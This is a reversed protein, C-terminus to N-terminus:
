DRILSRRRERLPNHTAAKQFSEAAHGSLRNERRANRLLTNLEHAELRQIRALRNQHSAAVNRMAQRRLTESDFIDEGAFGPKLKPALVVGNNLLRLCELEVRAPHREQFLRNEKERLLQCRGMIAGAQSWHRESKLVGAERRLSALDFARRLEDKLHGSM